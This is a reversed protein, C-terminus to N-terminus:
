QWENTELQRALRASREPLQRAWLSDLMERSAIDFNGFEAAALTKEFKLLGAIGLNFAMNVFVARRIEGLGFIWPLKRGIDIYVSHLDERLWNEAEAETCTPQIPEAHAKFCHGYGITDYGLSDKYATLRLEEDRKIQDIITM